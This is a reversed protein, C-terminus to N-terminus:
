RRGETTQERGESKRGEDLHIDRASPRREARTARRKWGKKQRAGEDEDDFMAMFREGARELAQLSANDETPRKEGGM